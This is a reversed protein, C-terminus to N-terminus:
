EANAALLAFICEEHGARKAVELATCGRFRDNLLHDVEGEECPEMKALITNLLQKKGTRATYHILPETGAKYTDYVLKLDFDPAEVAECLGRWDNNKTMNGIMLGPNREQMRTEALNDFTGEM